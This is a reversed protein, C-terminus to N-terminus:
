EESAPTSLASQLENWERPRLGSTQETVQEGSLMRRVVALSQASLTAANLRYDEFAEHAIPVWQRTIDMITSAYARIEQQAHSDARLRLFNMLNHLDTKWYWQTYLSTPLNMRALERSLNTDLLEEYSNYCRAADDKLIDLILAQDDESLGGDERGQKNTTSQVGLSSPTPLYFENDLISYRGSAENVSAMRHRIWQRAVFIPLKVHLKISLMEFPTTHHHRMLYRILNRDTSTARTGKGYSVRAAQVICSDTGMYDVVRIFGQDLVPHLSHLISEMGESSPRRSPYYLARATAIQQDIDPQDTQM